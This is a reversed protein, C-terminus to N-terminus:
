IEGVGLGLCGSMLEEDKFPKGKGYHRIFATICYTAKQHQRIKSLMIGHQQLYWCNTGKQKQTTNWQTSTSANM